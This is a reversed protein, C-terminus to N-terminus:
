EGAEVLRADIKLRQMDTRLALRVLLVKAAEREKSSVDLHCVALFTLSQALGPLPDSAFLDLFTDGQEGGSDISALDFPTLILHSLWLLMVYREEWTMAAEKLHGNEPTTSLSESWSMFSALMPELYKPENNLLQSIVKQGRVKCLTYLIKSVARPMVVAGRAQASVCHKHYSASHKEVYSLFASALISVM